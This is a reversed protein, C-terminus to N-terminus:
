ECEDVQKLLKIVIGEKASFYKFWDERNYWHTAGNDDTITLQEINISTIIYKRGVTLANEGSVLMKCPDIAILVDGIKPNM